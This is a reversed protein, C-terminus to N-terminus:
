GHRRAGFARLTGRLYKFSVWGIPGVLSLIGLTILTASLPQSFFMWPNDDFLIMSRMFSAEGLPGLIFALVFVPISFGFRELLYGLVGFGFMAWVDLMSNRVSFAGIICLIIVVPAFYANPVHVMRAFLRVSLIGGVIILLNSLITAAFILYVLDHQERFLAEGPQLGYIQFAGLMVATAASGPIGLTLLPIMAGGVSANNASEPAAVGAMIGTGFDKGQKSVRREMEYGFFAAVAAGLGPLVGVITGVISCRFLTGKLRFLEGLTPFRTRLDRNAGNNDDVGFRIERETRALVESIAFVGVMLAVFDFGGQLYESGFTFRHGGSVTDVGVTAFALGLLASIVAKVVSQGMLAVASLAFFVMGFYDPPGFTLAIQAVQPAAVVLVVSAFLGGLASAMIAAGMAKAAEGRKAMPYGDFTTAANEPAGPIRYLIATISGGYVGAAYIAVMLIFAQTPGLAYTFPLLMSLATVNQLGPITGFILGIAIGGVLFILNAPQLIAVLASLLDEM